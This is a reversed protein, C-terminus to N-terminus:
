LMVKMIALDQINQHCFNSKLTIKIDYSLYLRMPAETNNFKNFRNRFLSLISLLGQM